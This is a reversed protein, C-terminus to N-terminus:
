ICKIYEMGGVNKVMGEMEMITLTSMIKRTDLGVKRVLDNVHVPEAELNALICEEIIGLKIKKVGSKNFDAASSPSAVNFAEMIDGASAVPLAGEKILKFTGRSLLSFISGPVAFVERGNELALRATILSGSRENAEIVLTGLSYGAILRNRQPFNQKLPPTLPPFESIIAGGEGIIREALNRNERPYISNRDLGSGIIATTRGKKDLATKHALADIGLALGSVIHFGNLSLESVIKETALGGYPTKKRAGVVSLNLEDQGELRGRFYLIPPPDSIEKLMRPYDNEGLAVVSIKEAYLMELAKDPNFNKRFIFFDDLIRGDIGTKMYSERSANWAARPDKFYELVRKLRMPGFKPFHMVYILYKNKQLSNESFM